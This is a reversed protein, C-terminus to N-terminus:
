GSRQERSKAITATGQSCIHFMKALLLREERSAKTWLGTMAMFASSPQWNGLAARDKDDHCSLCIPLTAIGGLSRPVPFHDDEYRGHLDRECIYCQSVLREVPRRDVLPEVTQTDEM